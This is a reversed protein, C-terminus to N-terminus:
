INHRLGGHIAGVTVVAPNETINVNRSLITQLGMIAQASTVIPDVSSWPSAGHAQTGTITVNLNDV